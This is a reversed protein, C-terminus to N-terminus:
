THTAFSVTSSGRYLLFQVPSTPQKYQNTTVDPFKYASSDRTHTARTTPSNTARTASRLRTHAWRAARVLRACGMRAGERLSPGVVTPGGAPRIKYGLCAHWGSCLFFSLSLHLCYRISVHFISSFVLLPAARFFFFWFNFLLILLLRLFFTPCFVSSVIKLEVVAFDGRFPM